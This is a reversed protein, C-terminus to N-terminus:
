PAHRGRETPQEKAMAALTDLATQLLSGLHKKFAEQQASSSLSDSLIRWTVIVSDATPGRRMSFIGSGGRGSKYSYFDVGAQILTEVIPESGTKREIKRVTGIDGQGEIYTCSSFAPDWSAVACFGGFRTWLVEPDGTLTVSREVVVSDALVVEAPIANAACVALLALIVNIPTPVRCCPSLSATARVAKRILSRLM